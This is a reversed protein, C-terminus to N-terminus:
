RFAARTSAFIRTVKVEERGSEATSGLAGEDIGFAQSPWRCYSWTEKEWTGENDAGLRRSQTESGL